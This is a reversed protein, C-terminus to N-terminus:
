GVYRLAEAPPINAAIRGPIISAIFAIALTLLTYLTIIDWPILFEGTGSSNIKVLGYALINGAVLAIVLGLISMVSLELIVELIVERRKLGISRMMGIERRREQVSRVSVVLLGLTGILLGLSTFVQIFSFFNFQGNFQAAYVDYVPEAIIGHAGHLYRFTQVTQNGPQNAWAEINRSLDKNAQSNTGSTTTIVLFYSQSDLYNVNTSPNFAVLQKAMSESVFAGTSTAPGYSVLGADNLPNSTVFAAIVFEQLGGGVTPLWVSDGIKSYVTIGGQGTLTGVIPRMVIIPKLNGEKDKVFTNDALAQWVNADATAYSQDAINTSNTTQFGEQPNSQGPITYNAITYNSNYSSLRQDGLLFNIQISGKANWFSQNNVAFISQYWVNQQSNLQALSSYNKLYTIANPTMSFAATFNIQNSFQDKLIHSFSLNAPIPQDAYVLIDSNGSILTVQQSTGYLASYSWTAIFVNLSLVVAFIAFTLTSRTRQSAMQRFSLTSIASARRFKGLTIEALDALRNLNIGVLMIFGIIMSLAIEVVYDAGGSGSTIWTFVFFINFVPVAILILATINLVLERNVFYSLMICLGVLTFLTPLFMNTAGSLTRYAQIDWFAYPQTVLLTFGTIFVVIGLYLGKYGTRQDKVNEVGRLVEVINIQSARVAPLVGTLLAIFFGALFSIELTGPQVVIPILSGDFGFAIGFARILFISYIFGGFLGLIGGIFGTIVFETLNSTIIQRRKTGIARMIGTQSEREEVNMLQINTILLLGAFIILYGLITMFSSLAVALSIATDTIAQRETNVHFAGAGGSVNQFDPSQSIAYEINNVVTTTVNDNNINPAFKLIIQNVQGAPFHLPPALLTQLNKLNAYIAQNSESAGRGSYQVIGKIFFTELVFNNGPVALSVNLEDGTQIKQSPSSLSNALNQGIYVEKSGLQSVNVIGSSTRFQGFLSANEKPDIGVVPIALKIQGTIDSYTTMRVVLEPSLGIVESNLTSNNEILTQLTNALSQNFTPVQSNIISADQNGLGITFFVVFGGQFSDNTVTIGALLSVGLTIALIAFLNKQKRRLVSKLAYIM